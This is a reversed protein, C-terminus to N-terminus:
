FSCDRLIDTVQQEVHSTIHNQELIAIAECISKYHTRYIAGVPNNYKILTGLTTDGCEFESKTAKLGDLTERGREVDRLYLRTHRNQYQSDNSM